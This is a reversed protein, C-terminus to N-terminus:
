KITNTSGDIELNLEIWKNFRSKALTLVEREHAREDTNHKLQKKKLTIEAVLQRNSLDLGDLLLEQGKIWNNMSQEYEQEQTM